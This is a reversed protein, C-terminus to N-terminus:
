AHLKLAFLVPGLGDKHTGGDVVSSVGDIRLLKDLIRILRYPHRKNLDLGLLSRKGPMVM